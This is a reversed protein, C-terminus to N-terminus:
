KKFNIKLIIVDIYDLYLFNFKYIKIEVNLVIMFSNRVLCSLAVKLVFFRFAKFSYFYFFFFIAYRRLWWIFNPYLTITKERVLLNYRQRKNKRKEIRTREWSEGGVVRKRARSSNECALRYNRWEREL